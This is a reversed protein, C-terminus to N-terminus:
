AAPIARRRVEQWIVDDLRTMNRLRDFTAETAGLERLKALRQERTTGDGKNARFEQLMMPPAKVGAVRTLDAELADLRDMCYVGDLLAINALAMDVVRQDDMEAGSARLGLLRRRAEYCRGAFYFAYFNDYHDDLFDRIGNRPSVFYEDPSMHRAAHLGRRQPSRLEEETFRAAEARLYLYFSLIRDMPDRFISFTFRPEPLCDLLNWDLHGSYVRYKRIEPVTLGLLHSNVRVPAVQKKGFLRELFAHVSQGATKPIHLFVVSPPQENM